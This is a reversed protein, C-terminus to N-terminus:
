YIIFLYLYILFFFFFFFFFFVFLYLYIFYTSILLLQHYLEHLDARQGGGVSVDADVCRELEAKNVDDPAGPAEEEDVRTAGDVRVGVDIALRVVNM